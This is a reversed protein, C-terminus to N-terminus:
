NIEGMRRGRTPSLRRRPMRQLGIHTHVSDPLLDLGPLNPEHQGLHSEIPPSSGGLAMPMSRSGVAGLGPVALILCRMMPGMRRLGHKRISLTVTWLDRM